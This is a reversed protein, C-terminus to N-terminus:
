LLLFGVLLALLPKVLVSMGETSVSPAGSQVQSAPNQVEGIEARELAELQVDTLAARQGSTVMAANDPGLAELQDTSLAAINSPHLLPICSESLFMLVPASMSQLEHAHLGAIMNGVESVSAETWSSPHGFASVLLKKFRQAVKLSCRIDNISGVADRFASLDLQAIEDSTLGCMFRNLAVMDSADLRRAALNNRKAVSRWVPNLQSMKWGCRGVEELMDLSFAMKELDSNSFGQAICGMQAVVSENMQSVPGLAETAKKSLVTLQESDYDPVSGLTEMTVLFTDSSMMDLQDASWFVNDMALANIADVTPKNRNLSRTMRSVTRKRREEERKYTILNFLKRRLAETQHRTRLFYFVEIMWPKYPLAYLATEDLDLLPGFSEMTEQSWDSPDGFNDRVLEMLAERRWLPIHQCSAMAQLTANLSDAEILSLTSAELECVLPGLRSVDEVTLLSSANKEKTLCHLAKQVLAPRSPSRRPLSTLNATQTKNLFAECVSDPLNNLERPPLHIMLSTPIDNLQEETIITFYDPQVKQLTGFYKWAACGVQAKSLWWPTKETAQAMDQLDTDAVKDIMQCTVGQLLSTRWFNLYSGKFLKKVLFAAQSRSLNEGRVQEFSTIDAEDLNKLSMSSLLSGPLQRVLESASRKELLGQLVAKRQGRSMRRSINRLAEVDKPTEWAKVRQLACHPVGKMVPALQLLQQSSVEQCKEDGLVKNVLTRQQTSTSQVDPPLNKLVEKLDASSINDLQIPSLLSVSVGLLRLVDSTTWNSNSFVKKLLLTKQVTALPNYCEALLALIQQSLEPTSAPADDYYCALPGLQNVDEIFEREGAYCKKMRQLLKRALSPKMDGKNVESTFNGSRFIDCMTEPPYSDFSELAAKEQYPQMGDRNMWELQAKCCKILVLAACSVIFLSFGGKAAM